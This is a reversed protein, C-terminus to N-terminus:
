TGLAELYADSSLRRQERDLARGVENGFVAGLPLTQSGHARDPSAPGDEGPQVFRTLAGPLM